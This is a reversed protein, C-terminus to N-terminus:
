APEPKWTGSTPNIFNTMNTPNAVFNKLKKTVAILNVNSNIPFVPLTRAAHDAPVRQVATKREDEDLTHEVQYLVDDLDPNSYGM